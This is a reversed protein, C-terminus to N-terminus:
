RFEPVLCSHGRPHGSKGSKNLITKSTSAVSILSSFSLIPIWIPFSTLGDSDATSLVIYVSSGLPAALFSGSSMLTDALTASHLILESIQQM